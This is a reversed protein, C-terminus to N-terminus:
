AIGMDEKLREVEAVPYGVYIRGGPSTWTDAKIIDRKTWAVLTKRSVQLQKAAESRTLGSVREIM